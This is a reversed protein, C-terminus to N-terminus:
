CRPRLLYHWLSMNTHGTVTQAVGGVQNCPAFDLHHGSTCPDEIGSFDSITFYNATLIMRSSVSSSFEPVQRWFADSLGGPPPFHFQCSTGQKSVPDELGTVSWVKQLWWDPKINCVCKRHPGVSFSMRISIEVPSAVVFCVRFLYQDSWVEIKKKLFSHVALITNM